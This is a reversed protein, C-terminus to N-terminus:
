EIDRKPMRGCSESEKCYGLSVCKPVFLESLKKWEDSYDALAQKLEKCLDRIEWYARSCLRMEFFNVLTRLNVKWIMKSEYSIPLLMTLDEVPIDLERLKIM